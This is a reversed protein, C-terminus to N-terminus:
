RGAVVVMLKRTPNTGSLRRATAAVRVEDGTLSFEAFPARCTNTSTNWSGRQDLVETSFAWAGSSNRKYLKASLEMDLCEAKATFIGIATVIQVSQAKSDVIDVVFSKGCNNYTEPSWVFSGEGLLTADDKAIRCAETAFPDASTAVPEEDPSAPTSACGLAVLPAFALTFFSLFRHTKM